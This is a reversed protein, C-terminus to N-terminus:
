RADTWKRLNEISEPTVLLKGRALRAERRAQRAFALRERREERLRATEAYGVLMAALEEVASAPLWSAVGVSKM